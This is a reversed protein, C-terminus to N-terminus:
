TARQADIGIAREQRELEPRARDAILGALSLFPDHSTLAANAGRM